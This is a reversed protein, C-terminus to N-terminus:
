NCLDSTFQMHVASWFYVARAGSVDRRLLSKPGRGGITQRKRCDSKRSNSTAGKRVGTCTYPVVKGESM